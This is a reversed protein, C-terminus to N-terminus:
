NLYFTHACLKKKFRVPLILPLIINKINEDLRIKLYSFYKKKLFSNFKNFNLKNLLLENLCFSLFTSKKFAKNNVLESKDLNLHIFERM